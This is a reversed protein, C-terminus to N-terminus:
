LPSSHFFFSSAFSGDGIFYLEVFGSSTSASSLITSFHFISTFGSFAFTTGTVVIKSYAKGRLCERDRRNKLIICRCQADLHVPRLETRGLVPWAWLIGIAICEYIRM